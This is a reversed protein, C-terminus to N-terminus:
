APYPNYTGPACETQTAQGENTYHGPDAATQTKFVSGAPCYYGAQCLGTPAPNSSGACYSGAPCTICDSEAWKGQDPNYTGAPCSQAFKSGTPCYGGAPCLGGTVGDIPAATFAGESCYYGRDCLGDPEPLGTQSCYRGGWCTSCDQVQRLGTNPGFTGRPCPEPVFIKEPCYYGLPCMFPLKTNEPCYKGAPCAGCDASAGGRTLDRYFGKPCTNQTAVVSGAPCYYGRACENATYQTSGANTAYFGAPVPLCLDGSSAGVLPQWTGAACTSVQSGQCYRGAPCSYTTSVHYPREATGVACIYGNECANADM